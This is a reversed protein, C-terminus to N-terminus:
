VIEAMLSEIFAEIRTAFQGVPVTVDLELFYSPVGNEQLYKRLGPIDLEHPDCFKQQVTIVGEVNWEKALNLIHPFRWHEPCDKAPCPPRDIYRSAIAQLRDQEPIVESWFYRSGTCHDDIVVTAPLAMKQEIMSIFEVDDNESGVLMLRTGVERDLTRGKLEELAEELLKNHEEKDMLQSSVVMYMCELGTIPPKESKRLEYIEKMLRRNKNYVEIAYDLEEDTIKRGLWKEIDEEKFCELESRLYSKAHRNQVSQPFDVRFYPLRLNIAWSEFAQLMHMCSNCAAIGDLYEYRGQLGQALVDRCHPCFMGFLHPATVDEIEHSGLLRVPLVGGAYAIEEPFYTCFYGLVKGEPHRAKWDRAYDHRKEYIERFKEIAGM